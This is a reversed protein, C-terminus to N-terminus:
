AIFKVNKLPISQYIKNAFFSVAHGISPQTDNSQKIIGSKKKEHILLIKILYLTSHYYGARKESM